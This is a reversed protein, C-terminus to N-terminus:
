DTMSLAARSLRLGDGGRALRDAARFAETIRALPFVHSVLREFAAADLTVGAGLRM